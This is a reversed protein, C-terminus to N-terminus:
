RRSLSLKQTQALAQANEVEAREERTTRYREGRSGQQQLAPHATQAEQLKEMPTDSGSHRLNDQRIADKQQQDQRRSIADGVQVHQSREQESPRRENMRRARDNEENTRRTRIAQLEPHQPGEYETRIVRAAQLAAREDILPDRTFADHRRLQEASMRERQHSLEGSAKASPEQGGRQDSKLKPQDAAQGAGATDQRIAVYRQAELQALRSLEAEVQPRLLAYDPRQPGREGAQQQRLDEIRDKAHQEAVDQHASSPVLRRKKALEDEADDTM